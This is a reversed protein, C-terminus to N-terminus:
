KVDFKFGTGEIINLLKTYQKINILKGNKMVLDTNGRNKYHVILFQDFKWNTSEDGNYGYWHTTIQIYNYDEQYSHTALFRGEYGSSKSTNVAFEKSEKGDEVEHILYGTYQRIIDDGGNWNRENFKGDENFMPITNSGYGEKRSKSIELRDEARKRLHKVKIM